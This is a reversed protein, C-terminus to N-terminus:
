YPLFKDLPTEEISVMGLRDTRGFNISGDPGVLPQPYFVAQDSLSITKTLKGDPQMYFVGFAKPTSGLVALEEKTIMVPAPISMEYFLKWKLIGAKDYKFIGSLSEGLGSNYATIYVNGNLDASVFRAQVSLEKEFILKGKLDLSFIKSVRMDSKELLGIFYIRDNTVVPYKVLRTSEFGMAWKLKGEPTILVLSDTKGFEDNTLIAAINGSNDAALIKTPSLTHQRVWKLKGNKGVLAIRGDSSALVIGTNTILLESYSILISDISKFDYKWRFGGKRNLSLAKGNNTLFYLNQEQDACPPSICVEGSDLKYEWSVNTKTTLLISGNKTAVVWEASSLLLPAVFCGGSDKMAKPSTTTVLNKYFTTLYEHSNTRGAGGMQNILEGELSRECQCSVLFASLIISLIIRKM